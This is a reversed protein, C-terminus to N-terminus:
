NSGVARGKFPHQKEKQGLVPSTKKPMETAPVQKAKRQAADVEKIAQRIASRGEAVGKKKLTDPHAFGKKVKEAQSMKDVAKGLKKDVDHWTEPHPKKEGEAVGQQKKKAELERIKAAHMKNMAGKYQAAAQGQKHFEIQKDIDATSESGEAVGQRKTRTLKETYAVADELAALGKQESNKSMGTDYLEDGNYIRVQWGMGTDVLDHRFNGVKVSKVVNKESGEAVGKKDQAVNRKWIEYKVTGKKPAKGHIPDWEGKPRETSLPKATVPAVHKSTMAGEAVGQSKQAKEAAQIQRWLNNMPGEMDRAKRESHSLNQERDAYQWNSGGLSKYEDRMADYKAKLEPLAAIDAALQKALADKRDKEDRARVRNLGAERKKYTALDKARGEPDRNFMAGMQSQAKQMAAKKRYDGLSVEDLKPKKDNTSFEDLRM